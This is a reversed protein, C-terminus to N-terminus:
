SPCGESLMKPNSQIKCHFHGRRRYLLSCRAVDLHRTFQAFGDNFAGIFNPSLKRRFGGKTPLIIDTAKGHSLCKFFQLAFAQNFAFAARASDNLWGRGAAACQVLRKRINAFQQLIGAVTLNGIGFLFRPGQALFNRFLNALIRVANPAPKAPRPPLAFVGRWNRKGIGIEVFPQAVGDVSEIKTCARQEALEFFQGVGRESQDGLINLGDSGIRCGSLPQFNVEAFGNQPDNTAIEILFARNVFNRDAMVGAVTEGIGHLDVQIALANM